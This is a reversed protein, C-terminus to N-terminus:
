LVGRNLRHLRKAILKSLFLGYYPQYKLINIFAEKSIKILRGPTNAIVTASRSEELLFSMEGILIDDPTLNAIHKRNVEVRYEGEAVYYLFDSEEGQKFVIDNQKFEVVENDRFAGPINGTNSQHEIELSVENGKNNYAIHNVVQRTLLIGRGHVSLFDIEGDGDLYSKWDFGKGEDRIVFTSHERNIDYSFYVKSAAIKKDRSKKRVLDHITSHKELHKTKEESTIACNGHEIANILMETLVLSISTKSEADLFGVNFLYNAILNAYCPVLLLNLDLVLQGATSAVLDTQIARQFLISQNFKTVNLITELQQEVEGHSLSILINTDKFENLRDFTESGEYFAIVGGHNLWPDAAIRTILDFGDFSGNSFNLLILAPMQYNIHELAAESDGIEVLNIWQSREKGSLGRSEGRNVKKMTKTISATLADNSNVLPIKM